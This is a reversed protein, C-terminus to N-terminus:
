AAHSLDKKQQQPTSEAADVAQEMAHVAREMKMFRSGKVLV